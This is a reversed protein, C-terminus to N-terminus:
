RRADQTFASCRLVHTCGLKLIVIVMLPKNKEPAKACNRFTVILKTMNTQRDSHFLEAAVPRIKIFSSIQAKKSFKNGLKM